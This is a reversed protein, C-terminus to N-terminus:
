LNATYRPRNNRYTLFGVGTIIRKDFKRFTMRLIPTIRSQGDNFNILLVSPSINADDDSVIFIYSYNARSRYIYIYDTLWHQRV